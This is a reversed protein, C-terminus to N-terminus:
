RSNLLVKYSAFWIRSLLGYMLVAFVIILNSYLETGCVISIKVNELLLHLPLV